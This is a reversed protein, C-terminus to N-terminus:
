YAPVGRFSIKGEGHAVWIGLTSGAMGRLMLAPSEEIGLSVFRSEFRGSNNPSLLLGPQIAGGLFSALFFTDHGHDLIGWTIWDWKIPYLPLAGLM